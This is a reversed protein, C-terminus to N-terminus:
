REKVSPLGRARPLVSMEGPYPFPRARGFRFDKWNLHAKPRRLNKNEPEHFSDHNISALPHPIVTM